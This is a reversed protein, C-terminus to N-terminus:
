HFECVVQLLIKLFLFKVQQFFDLQPNTPQGAKSKIVELIAKTDVTLRNAGAGSGSGFAGSTSPGNQTLDALRCELNNAFTFNIKLAFNV